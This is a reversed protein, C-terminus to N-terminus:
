MEYLGMMAQFSCGKWAKWMPLINEKIFIPFSGSKRILKAEALSIQREQVGQHPQEMIMRLWQRGHEEAQDRTWEGNKPRTQEVLLDVKQKLSPDDGEGQRIAPQAHCAWIEAEGARHKMGAHDEVARQSTGFHGCKSCIYGSKEGLFQGVSVEPQQRIREVMAGWIGMSPISKSQHEKEFHRIFTGANDCTHKCKPYPCWAFANMMELEPKGPHYAKCTRFVTKGLARSFIMCWFDKVNRWGVNHTNKMHNVFDPLATFKQSQGGEWCRPCACHEQPIWRSEFSCMVDVLKTHLENAGFTTRKLETWKARQEDTAHTWINKMKETMEERKGPSRRRKACYPEPGRGPKPEDVRGFGGGM